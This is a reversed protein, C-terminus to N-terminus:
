HVARMMVYGIANRALKLTMGSGLAGAHVIDGSFSELVPRAAAVAEDPGGVLTTLTGATAGGEGGTVGADILQVGREAAAAALEEIVEVSMTTHIAIVAGPPATMLVGGPGTLVGRAQEGDFVVVCVVDAGEAAEGPSGVAVGGAQVRPAVAAAVPDFVRVDHGAAIANDAMPGGMRGLGIFGVRSMHGAGRRGRDGGRVRRAASRQVPLRRLRRSPHRGRAGSRADARRHPDGARVPPEAGRLPGARGARRDDAVAPGPHGARAADVGRRLATRDDPRLVPHKGPRVRGGGRRVREPVDRDRAALAGRRGGHVGGNPGARWDIVDRDRISFPAMSM